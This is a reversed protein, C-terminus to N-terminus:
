SRLIKDLFFLTTYFTSDSYHMSITLRQLYMLIKKRNQSYWNSISNDQNLFLTTKEKMLLAIEIPNTSSLKEQNLPKIFYKLSNTTNEKIIIAGYHLCFTYHSIASSFPSIKTHHCKERNSM